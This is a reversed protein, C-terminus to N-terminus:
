PPPLHFDYMWTRFSLTYSPSLRRSSSKSLTAMLPTSAKSLPAWVNRTTKPISLKQVKEQSSWSPTSIISISRPLSPRSPPPHSPRSFKKSNSKKLLSFSFERKIPERQLFRAELSTLQRGPPWPLLVLFSNYLLHRLCGRLTIPSMRRSSILGLLLHRQQEMGM